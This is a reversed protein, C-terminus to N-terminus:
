ESEEYTMKGDLILDRHRERIENTLITLLDTIDEWAVARPLDLVFVADDTVARIQAIEHDLMLRVDQRSLSGGDPHNHVVISGRLVAVPAPVRDREGSGQYLVQGTTDLVIVTEVVQGVVASEAVLIAAALGPEDPM